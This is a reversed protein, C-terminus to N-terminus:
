LMKRSTASGLRELEAAISSVSRTVYPELAKLVEKIGVHERMAAAWSTLLQFSFYSHLQPSPTGCRQRM